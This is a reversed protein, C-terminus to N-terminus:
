LITSTTTTSRHERSSDAAADPEEANEASTLIPPAAVATTQPVKEEAAAATLAVDEDDHPQQQDDSPVHHQVTRALAVSADVRGLRHDDLGHELCEATGSGGVAPPAPGCGHQPSAPPPQVDRPLGASRDETTQSQSVAAM